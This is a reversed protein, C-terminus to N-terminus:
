EQIHTPDPGIAIEKGFHLGPELCSELVHFLQIFLDPIDWKGLFAQGLGLECADLDVADDGVGSSNVVGVSAM